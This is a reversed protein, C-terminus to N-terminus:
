VKVGSAYNKLKTDSLVIEDLYQVTNDQAKATYCFGFSFMLIVIFIQKM